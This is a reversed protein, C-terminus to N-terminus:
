FGGYIFDVSNYGPGYIGFIIISFIAVLLIVYRFIVNQKEFIERIKYGKSHLVDVALLLQIAFLLLLLDYKSVGLSITSFSLLNSGIHKIVSISEIVGNSCVVLWILCMLSLTRFMQFLTYSFCETRIKFMEKIKKFVPQFIESSILYISPLVGAAFIYLYSAGHWFGIILWLIFLGLFTPISKSAQKGFKNKILLALKQFLNSKLLPYLIYNKSWTGLTIHWRRWFESLNKSLFPYNFNEPLKIGYVESAGIVIDMCGSFDAYIQFAYCFVAFVIFIGSYAQYDSFVTAVIIALRDAIVMKKFYGWLMRESGFLLNHWKYKHTAFLEDTMENKRVIPGSIMFPYYCTFLSHKLFNKQAPAVEWYVDVIYGILSLTYYSIGLPAVLSFNKAGLSINFLRGFLNVTNPFINIYKLLFLEAGILCLTLILTTKKQKSTKCKESIIRAGFYSVIIGFFLYPIMKISSVIVFFALSFVLLTFWKIRHPTLYYIVLTIFFFVVFNLSTINM